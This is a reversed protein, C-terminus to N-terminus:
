LLAEKIANVVLRLEDESLEPYLPLSLIEKSAKETAPFAKKRSYCAYALQKHVPVPYHILAGIQKEKLSSLLLDRKKCRVVYLHYAHSTDNRETPLAIDMMKLEEGYLKALQTRKANDQDLHNLKVRLIAAQIEDLRSNWGFSTSVYRETWGYERLCRAKEAVNPDNTVIM